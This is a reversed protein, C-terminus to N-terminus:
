IHAVQTIRPAGILYGFSFDDGAAEYLNYAGFANRVGGDDNSGHSGSMPFAMNSYAQYMPKDMGRADLSRMIDVKSRRIIPGDISSITGEGVLSIPTQAYYPVEFELTGNLDPYVYSEFTPSAQTATFTGLTAKTLDGNEDINASRRVILPDQPRIADNEFGDHCVEYTQRNAIETSAARVGSFTPRLGNTCPTAFKYRRSGRWFRYLYSIYYLPCRTPVNAVAEFSDEALTGNAARSFPYQINQYPEWATDVVEGFYAPDVRIKNFLYWDNNLPIPGPFCFRDRSTSLYPFPRGISTIGFRKILQRLNTIKEGICLEEATTKSMAGMPFISSSTDTTQENHQIASTTMNFMQARWVNEEDLIPPADTEAVEEELVPASNTEVDEADGMATLPQRVIYRAFDPMAFSIDDSAGIWINLPVNDAVSDSARRLENLVTVTITGTSYKETNWAQDAYTGLRVEKWPVNSVYPIEIELESSVSLDLIWNYANDSVTGPLVVDSLYVGPHYTIRLRGTHFATKAATIRFKLGGRWQQFMSAVFALTTPSMPSYGQALGPAVANRHLITDHAHALTWALGSRFVCSKSCVYPIDMEDMKTSFIGEDYTLGNDPMACLKSSMDIGDAHTYGKAPVNIYPSNKDLNTPKNWGFSSAVGGVARSVWEVPRMMPGLIPIAGLASAAGAVANAIGSIPPGSTAQHEESAGGGIQARWVPPVTVERSTPMAVEIDEFWAFVTFTAGIALPSIGSQIQNLPVIYFEGMNSHSDILNFHSLPSCYPIKIEVPENSAIDIEVGPFGTCNPLNDLMAGRNSVVDFPAFFLWYRGSMFPTANFIIRIKVNARFFTFYDLKKVVNASKQFIIDPFKLALNTFTNNFEGEHVKVPRNLIAHIDHDKTDEAIRTWATVSSIAPKEYTQIASDDVFTTIQQTNETSQEISTAISHTKQSDTARNFSDSTFRRALLWSKLLCVNAM